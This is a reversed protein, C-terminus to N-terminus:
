PERKQGPRATRAFLFQMADPSLPQLLRPPSHSMICSGEDKERVSAQDPWPTLAFYNQPYGGRQEERKYSEEQAIERAIERRHEAYSGQFGGTENWTGM